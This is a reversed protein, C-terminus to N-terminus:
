GKHYVLNKFDERKLLTAPNANYKSRGEQAKLLYKRIITYDSALSDSNTKRLSILYNRFEDLTFDYLDKELITEYTQLMKNRFIVSCQKETADTDVTFGESIERIFEKKFEVDGTFKM